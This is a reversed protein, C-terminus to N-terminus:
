SATTTQTSGVSQLVVGNNVLNSIDIVLFVTTNVMRPTNNGRLDVSLREADDTFLVAPLGYGNPQYTPKMAGAVAPCTSSPGGAYTWLNVPDVPAVDTTYVGELHMSGTISADFWHIPVLGNTDISFQRLSLPAFQPVLASDTGTGVMASRVEGVLRVTNTTLAGM